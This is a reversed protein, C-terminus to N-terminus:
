ARFPVALTTRTAARWLWELPGYRFHQFWWAALALQAVFAALGILVMQSHSLDNWLGFGYGYLLPAFVLSQGVYLTLTMRGAPAFSALASGWPSHWLLIFAAVQFATAGLTRYEDFAAAFWTDAMAVGSPAPALLGTAAWLAAGAALVALWFGRREGAEAFLGRRQLVIGILFLGAIEVVRGNEFYFSWKNVSGPGFNALLAQTFSGSALAQM